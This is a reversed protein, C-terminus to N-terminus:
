ENFKRMAIERIENETIVTDARDKLNDYPVTIDNKYILNSVIISFAKELLIIAVTCAIVFMLICLKCEGNVEGFISLIYGVAIFLFAMRNDYINRVCFRVKEKELTSNDNEDREAINSGPFYEEIIREKTKGFYKIILLVAGAVQFSLSLVYAIVEIKLLECGFM